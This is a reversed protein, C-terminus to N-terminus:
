GDPQAAVRHGDALLRETVTMGLAGTGGTVLVTRPTSSSM